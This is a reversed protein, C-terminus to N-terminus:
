NPFKISFIMYDILLNHQLILLNINSCGNLLEQSKEQHPQQHKTAKRLEKQHNENVANRMIKSILHILTGYVLSFDYFTGIGPTAGAEFGCIIAFISARRLEDVWYTISYEQRTLLMLLYSRLMCDPFQNPGM